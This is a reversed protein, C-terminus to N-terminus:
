SKTRRSPRSSFIDAKKEELDVIGNLADLETATDRLFKQLVRVWEVKIAPTMVAIFKLEKAGRKQFAPFESDSGTDMVTQYVGKPLNSFQEIIFREELYSILPDAHFAVLGILSPELKADYGCFLSSNDLLSLANEIELKGLASIISKAAILMPIRYNKAWRFEDILCLFQLVQQWKATRDKRCLEYFKRAADDYCHKIFSASYYEQVSQHIFTTDFGEKQMLCAVDVIDHKFNGLDCKEKSYDLAKTFALEFLAPKLSRINGSQFAMFCFCEFFRQLNREDLGSKCERTFAIKAKDHATFVTQFLVEYFEPLEPPIDREARYVFAALTLMLPTTLLESVRSSEGSLAMLLQSKLESPMGIKSLFGDFDRKTLPDISLVSFQSSKQIDRNPRSTIIIQFEPYKISLTELEEMVSLILLSPLEDFGDLLLVLQGSKLYFEYIGGATAFGLNDLASKIGAEVTRHKELTRCEFFVPIRSTGKEKLEQLCLYRLFVSKGQGVIGEVVYNQEKPIKALSDVTRSVDDSFRIKPPYYIKSIRVDKNKQWITRVKDYVLVKSALQKRCAENNWRDLEKSFKEKGLVYLEDLPRKVLLLAAAAVSISM